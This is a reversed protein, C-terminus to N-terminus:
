YARRLVPEPAYARMALSPDNYYGALSLGVGASRRAIVERQVAPPLPTEGPPYTDDAVAEGFCQFFGCAAAPTASAALAAVLLAAPLLRM